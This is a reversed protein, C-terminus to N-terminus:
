EDGDPNDNGDQKDDGNNDGHDTNKTETIVGINNLIVKTSDCINGILINFFITNAIM